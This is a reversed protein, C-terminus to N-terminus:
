DSCATALRHPDKGTADVWRQIAVAVYAPNLEMARCKRHLNEAAIITTGSGSFPEYVIDGQNGHNRMPKAMCETPKQTGHITTVEHKFGIEWVTTQKRGGAWSATTGKRVGYWAEDAEDIDTDEDIRQAAFAPEHKWHYAGRSMVLRPKVWLVQARVFFGAAELSKQVTASHLGGHWVYAINGSFLRWAPTWDAIDDNLVVGTRKSKSVGAVNRWSPDYNVGYPPDTVMIFPTEGQMLNAVHEPNRADGCFLRHEGLQWLQGEEIGYQLRLGEAENVKPEADLQTEESGDGQYLGAAEGLESVLAQLAADSFEVERLLADLNVANATAMGAIPDFTLLIKTAEEPTVDLVLVPVMQDPMMGARMHGDIIDYTGDGRERVLLADVMGVEALIGSMAAKQGDSHSRWNLPNALLDACRVRDFREIRDRIAPAAEPQKQAKKAM